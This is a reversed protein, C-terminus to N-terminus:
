AVISYWGNGKVVDKGAHILEGITLLVLFPELDGAFTAQGVLGSIPTTRKQRHSYSTLEQWRTHDAICTITEAQALLIERDERSLAIEPNGYHHELDLYRDLLRQVLPRFSAYKVLRERDVLRLPTIFDLTIREKNLKQARQICEKIQISIALAPIRKTGAEYITQRQETFPHYAEVSEVQFRGRQWDNEDLRRDLGQAELQPIALMIYPLLQVIGGILTLEFSFREGSQYRRTGGPPPTILYPRPIDQGRFSNERLPSVIASVPCTDHLPCDACTPASRNVCFRKWIANFFSGRLAAGSYADLGLPTVACVNFRLHTTTLAASEFLTHM